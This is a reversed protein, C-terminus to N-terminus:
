ADHACSARRREDRAVPADLAFFDCGDRLREVHRPRDLRDRREDELQRRHRAREEGRDDDHVDRGDGEGDDGRADQSGEAEVAM